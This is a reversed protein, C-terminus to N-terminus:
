RVVAARLGAHVTLLHGDARQTAAPLHGGSATHYGLGIFTFTSGGPCNWRANAVATGTGTNTGRDLFAARRDQAREPLVTRTRDDIPAGAPFAPFAEV